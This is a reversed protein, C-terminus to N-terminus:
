ETLTVRIARDGIRTNQMSDIVTLADKRSHFVVIGSGTSKEGARIINARLIRGVHAFHNRLEGDTASYPVNRVTVSCGSDNGKPTKPEAGKKTLKAKGTKAAIALKRIGSTEPKRNIGLTGKSRVPKEVDDEMATKSHPKPKVKSAGIAYSRHAALLAELSM